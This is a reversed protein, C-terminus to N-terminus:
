CIFAVFIFMSLICKVVIKLLCSLIYYVLPAWSLHVLYLHWKLYFNWPQHAQLLMSPTATTNWSSLGLHTLELQSFCSMCPESCNGKRKLSTDIQYFILAWHNIQMEKIELVKWISILWKCKKKSVSIDKWWGAWKRISLASFM